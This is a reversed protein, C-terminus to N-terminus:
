LGPHNAPCEAIAGGRRAVPHNGATIREVFVIRGFRLKLLQLLDLLFDARSASRIALPSEFAQLRCLYEIACPHELLRRTPGVLHDYELNHSKNCKLLELYKDCTDIGVFYQEYIHRMVDDPLLNILRVTKKFAIIDATEQINPQM